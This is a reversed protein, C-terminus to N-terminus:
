ILCFNGYLTCFMTPFPSIARRKECHKGFSYIGLADFHPVTNVAIASSVYPLFYQPFLLFQECRAIKRKRVFNKEGRYIKLADFHPM